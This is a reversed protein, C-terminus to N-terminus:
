QIVETAVWGFTPAYVRCVSTDIARRTGTQVDIMELTGYDESYAGCHDLKQALLYRSDSSWVIRAGDTPGLNKRRAFDQADLLLISPHTRNQLAAVYKGDPSWTAIWFEEFPEAAGSRLNLLELRNSHRAFAHLGDPALSLDTWGAFAMPVFREDLVVTRVDGNSLGIEFIGRVSGARQRRSGAIFVRDQSAPISLSVAGVETSGSIPTLRVPNFEIKLLGAYETKPPLSLGSAVLFTGDPSYALASLSLPLRVSVARGVCPFVLLASPGRFTLGSPYFAANFRCPESDGPPQQGTMVLASGVIIIVEVLHKM